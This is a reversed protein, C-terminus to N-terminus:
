RLSNKGSRSSPMRPTDFKSKSPLTFGNTNFDVGSLQTESRWQHSLASIDTQAASTCKDSKIQNSDTLPKIHSYNCFGGSRGNSRPYRLNSLPSRFNSRGSSLPRYFLLVDFHILFLKKYDIKHRRV